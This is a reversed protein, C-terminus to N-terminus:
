NFGVFRKTRQSHTQNFWWNETGGNGLKHFCTMTVYENPWLTELAKPVPDANDLIEQYKFFNFFLFVANCLLVIVSLLVIIRWTKDKM